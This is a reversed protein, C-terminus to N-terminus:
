QSRCGAWTGSCWSCTDSACHGAGKVVATAPALRHDTPGNDTEVRTNEAIMHAQIDNEVQVGIFFILLLISFLLLTTYVDRNIECASDELYLKDNQTDYNIWRTADRMREDVATSRGLFAFLTMSMIDLQAPLLSFVLATDTTRVGNEPLKNHPDLLLRSHKVFMRILNCSLCQRTHQCCTETSMIDIPKAVLFRHMEHLVDCCEITLEFGLTSVNTLAQSQTVSITVSLFILWQTWARM